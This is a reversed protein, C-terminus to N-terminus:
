QFYRQKLDNYRRILEENSPNRPDNPPTFHNFFDSLSGSKLYDAYVPSKMTGAFGQRPIGGATGGTVAVQPLGNYDVVQGNNMINFPNAKQQQVPAQLGGSEMLGVITPLLPDSKGGMGQGVSALEASLTAMPANAGFKKIGNQILQAFQSQTPTPTPTPTPTATPTPTPGFMITQTPSQGFNKVGQVIKNILQKFM